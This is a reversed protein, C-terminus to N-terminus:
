AIAGRMKKIVGGHDERGRAIQLLALTVQALRESEVGPIVGKVNM